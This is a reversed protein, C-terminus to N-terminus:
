SSTNNGSLGFSLSNELFCLLDRVERAGFPLNTAISVLINKM